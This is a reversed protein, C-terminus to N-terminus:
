ITELYKGIMFLLKTTIVNVVPSYNLFYNVVEEKQFGFLCLRDRYIGDSKLKFVWKSRITKEHKNM